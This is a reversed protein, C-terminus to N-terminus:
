SAPSSVVYAGTSLFVYGQSTTRVPRNRELREYADFLTLLGEVDGRESALQAASAISGPDVASAVEERYLAESEQESGARKLEAMVSGVTMQAWGRNRQ